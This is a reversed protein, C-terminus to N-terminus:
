YSNIFRIKKVGEPLKSLDVVFGDEMEQRWPEVAQQIDVSEMEQRLYSEDCSHEGKFYKIVEQPYGIGANECALKAQIMKAFLGDLDRVGNVRSCMGM